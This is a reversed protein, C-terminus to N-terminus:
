ELRDGLDGQALDIMRGDTVEGELFVNSPNSRKGAFTTFTQRIERRNNRRRYFKDHTSYEFSLCNWDKSLRKEIPLFSLPNFSFPFSCYSHVFFEVYDLLARPYFSHRGRYYYDCLKVEFINEEYSPLVKISSHKRSVNLFVQIGVYYEKEREREWEEWDHRCNTANCSGVACRYRLRITCVYVYLCVPYIYIRTVFSPRSSLHSELYSSCTIYLWIIRDGSLRTLTVHGHNRHSRM